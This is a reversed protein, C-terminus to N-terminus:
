IVFASVTVIAGFVDSGKSSSEEQNVTSRQGNRWGMELNAMNFDGHAGPFIYIFTRLFQFVGPHHRHM